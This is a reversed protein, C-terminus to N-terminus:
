HSCGCGTGCGDDADPLAAAPEEDKGSSEPTTSEGDGGRKALRKIWLQM